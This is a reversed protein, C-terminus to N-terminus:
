KLNVSGPFNVVSKIEVNSLIAVGTASVSINCYKTKANDMLKRIFWFNRQEYYRYLKFPKFDKKDVIKDIISRNDIIDKADSSIEKYAEKNEAQEEEPISNEDIYDQWDEEFKNKIENGLTESIQM